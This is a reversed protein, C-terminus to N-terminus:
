AVDQARGARAKRRQEALYNLGRNGRVERGPRDLGWQPAAPEPSFWLERARARATAIRSNWAKQGVGAAERAAVYNGHEALTRLTAQHRAPLAELVQKVAIKEIVEDEWSDVPNVRWYTAYGRPEGPRGDRAANRNGGLFQLYRNNAIGVASSAAQYMERRTPPSEAAYLFEVLACAAIDQCEDVDLLRGPHTYAVHRAMRALSDLDLGHPLEETM